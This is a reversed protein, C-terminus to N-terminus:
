FDLAYNRTQPSVSNLLTAFCRACPPLHKGFLAPCLTYLAMDERVVDGNRCIGLVKQSHIKRKNGVKSFYGFNM